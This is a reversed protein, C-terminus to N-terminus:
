YTLQFNYPGHGAWIAFRGSILNIKGFWLGCMCKPAVFVNSYFEAGGNLPETTGEAPLEDVEKQIVPHYTLPAKINFWTINNSSHLIAGLSFITVELWILCSGTLLLTEGNDWFNPFTGIQM